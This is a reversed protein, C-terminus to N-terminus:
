RPEFVSVFTQYRFVGSSKTFQRRLTADPYKKQLEPPMDSVPESAIIVLPFQLGSYKNLRYYDPQRLEWTFRLSVNQAGNGMRSREKCHDGRSNTARDGGGAEYSDRERVLPRGEAHARAELEHRGVGALERPEHGHEAVDLGESEEEESM